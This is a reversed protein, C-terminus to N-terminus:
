FFFPVGTTFAAGEAPAGLVMSLLVGKIKLKLGIRTGM